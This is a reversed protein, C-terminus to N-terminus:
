PDNQNILKIWRWMGISCCRRWSQTWCSIPSPCNSLRHSSAQFFTFHDSILIWLGVEWYRIWEVRQSCANRLSFPRFRFLKIILAHGVYKLLQITLRFAEIGMPVANLSLAFHLSPLTPCHIKLRGWATLHRGTCDDHLERETQFLSKSSFM